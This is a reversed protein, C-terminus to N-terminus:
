FFAERVVNAIETWYSSGPPPLDNHGVEYRVLKARPNAAALREGHTVPVLRDLTGHFVLIPGAFTSVLSLNDFQDRIFFRPIGMGRAVETVSTFTSELILARPPRRRALACVVGGGLSRGHYLFRGDSRPDALVSALAREFDHVLAAESPQGRSRGYGRYEPLLVSVGLQRYPALMGPWHDILEGNGHAFVVVPGPTAATVGRGPLLWAEIGDLWLQEGAVAAHAAQRPSPVLHSPFLLKRQLWDLASV